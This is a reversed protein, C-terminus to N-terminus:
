GKTAYRSRPAVNPCFKSKLILLYPWFLKRHAGSRHTPLRYCGIKPWIEFVSSFFFAHLLPNFSVISTILVADSLLVFDECVLLLFLRSPTWCIDLYQCQLVFNSPSCSGGRWRCSSASTPACARSTSKPPPM